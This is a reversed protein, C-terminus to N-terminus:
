VDDSNRLVNQPYFFNSFAIKPSSTRVLCRIKDGKGVLRKALHSGVFGTAGTILVTKLRM